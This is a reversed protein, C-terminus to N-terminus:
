HSDFFDTEGDALHFMAKTNKNLMMIAIETEKLFGHTLLQEMKEKQICNFPKSFGNCLLTALLDKEWVQKTM